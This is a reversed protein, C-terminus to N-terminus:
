KMFRGLMGGVDDLFSGDGDQDLIKGLMDMAPSGSAQARSQEGGLMAAVGGADLGNSQKQKALMGMVVPALNQLLGGIQNQNMGTMQSLGTEVTSQKGGFVHKLIGAGPGNDSSGLFGTLNDMIGGDHDKALASDLSQAGQPDSANKAMAGVIMPLAASIATSTTNSDAGLQSSLANLAPGSLQKTLENLLSM